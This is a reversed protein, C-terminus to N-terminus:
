QLTSVCSLQACKRWTTSLFSYPRGSRACRRGRSFSCGFLTSRRGLIQAMPTQVLPIDVVPFSSRSECRWNVASESGCVCSVARRAWRHERVTCRLSSSACMNHSLASSCKGLEACGPGEAGSAARVIRERFSASWFLLKRPFNQVCGVIQEATDNLPVMRPRQSRSQRSDSQLEPGARNSARCRGAWKSPAAHRSVVVPEHLFGRVLDMGLGETTSRGRPKSRDRPESCPCGPSEQRKGSFQDVAARVLDVPRMAVAVFNEVFLSWQDKHGSVCVVMQTGVTLMNVGRETRVTLRFASGRVGSDHVPTGHVFM